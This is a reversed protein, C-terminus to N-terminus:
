IDAGAELLLHLSAAANPVFGPADALDHRLTGSGGADGIWNTALTSAHVRAHRSGAVDCRRIARRTDIVQPTSPDLLQM